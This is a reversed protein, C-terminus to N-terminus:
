GVDRGRTLWIERVASWDPPIDALFGITKGTAIQRFARMAHLHAGSGLYARMSAEDTWISLTHHIGEITRAETSINGTAARAQIMSRIAHWWFRGANLPGRKLKLGTISIYPMPPKRRSSVATLSARSPIRFHGSAPHSIGPVHDGHRQLRHNSAPLRCEVRLATRAFPRRTSCCFFGASMAAPPNFKTAPAPNSGAAKLNHAQRAVPSSWGAIFSYCASRRTIRQCEM